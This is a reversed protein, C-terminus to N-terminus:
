DGSGVLVAVAGSSLREIEDALAPRTPSPKKIYLVDEHHFGSSSLDALVARVLAEFKPKSNDIVGIAGVARRRTATRATADMDPVPM